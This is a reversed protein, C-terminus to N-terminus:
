VDRMMARLVYGPQGPAHVNFYTKKGLISMYPLKVM